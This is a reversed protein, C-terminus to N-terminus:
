REYIQIQPSAYIKNRVSLEDIVEQWLADDESGGLDNSIGTKKISYMLIDLSSSEWVNKIWQALLAFSPKKPNGAANTERQGSMM